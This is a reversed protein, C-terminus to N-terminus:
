YGSVEYAEPLTVVFAVTISKKSRPPLQVEWTLIGDDHDWATPQTAEGALTVDIARERSVPLNELVRVKQPKDTWNGVEIQYRHHLRKKSGFTGAGQLEERKVYRAVQVQSHLGLSFSFPQGPARLKTETRGIFARGRFLEVPGPLMPFSFPNRLLARRYVFPFLKPVTELDLKAQQTRRELTVVVQRGDAPVTIRGAAPLQMALGPESAAAAATEGGSPAGGGGSKKSDDTSAKLHERQEFRRTLIKRTDAPKYTSVQMRGVEPPFNQRQLNATSVALATQNWDEGTGQQVIAQAVVTLKGGAEVRVQYGIRWTAHPVVYSLQVAQRGTCKLHATVRLTTRRREQEVLQLDAVLQARQRYLERQQAQAKRRKEAAALSQQRILDLASDWSGVPPKAETAQHSWVSVMHDRMSSLKLELAGQVEVISTQQANQEDLTRIQQQLQEARPRPGSPEEIASVGVVSGATSNQLAAWLTKQELTSPLGAFVASGAACDVTQTRTVQARDSYVVVSTIPAATQAAAAAPLLLAVACCAVPLSTTKTTM